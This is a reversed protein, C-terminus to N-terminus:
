DFIFDLSNAGDNFQIYAKSATGGNNNAFGISKGTYINGTAGIGGTIIATGTISSTSDVAANAYIKQDAIINNGIVNGSVDITGTINAGTSDVEIIETGGVNIFVNGGSTPISVNSTGNDIISLDLTDWSLGGAGNSIIYQGSTGDSIRVNAIPGLSTVGNVSLSTLTGVSTINAQSGSSSSISGTLTSGHIDGTASVNGSFVNGTASLTSATVVSAAVNGTASFNATRLENSATDFTLSASDTLINSANAFPIRTSSLDSSHLTNAYAVNMTVNGTVSLDTGNFTMDNTGVLKGDTTAYVVQTTLLSSLAANGVSLTNTSPAYEFGAEAALDNGSGAKYQIEFANGAATQFDIAVGNAYFYNDGYFGGTGSIVFNASSTTNGSVSLSALTGVSTINAQSASTSTLTGTILDTKIAGSNGYGVDLLVNALDFNFYQSNALVGSTGDSGSVFQVM